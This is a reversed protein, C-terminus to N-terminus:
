WNTFIKRPPQPHHPKQTRNPHNPRHNRNKLFSRHRMRNIPRPHPHKKSQVPPVSLGGPFNIYVKKTSNEMEVTASTAPKPEFRKHDESPQTPKKYFRDFPQEEVAPAYPKLEEVESPYRWAASKGELWVLDYAKIGMQIIEDVTFPGSQKNDRLLLYKNM